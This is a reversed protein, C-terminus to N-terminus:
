RRRPQGPPATVFSTFPNPVCDGGPPPGLAARCQEYSFYRCESSGSFSRGGRNACWAYGRDFGDDDYYRIAGNPQRVASAANAPPAALTAAATVIAACALRATTSISM